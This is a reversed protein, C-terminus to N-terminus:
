SPNEMKGWWCAADKKPRHEVAAWLCAASLQLIEEVAPGFFTRSMFLSLPTSFITITTPKTLLRTCSNSLPAPSEHDACAGRGGRAECNNHEGRPRDRSSLSVPLRTRPTATERREREGRETRGRATHCCM